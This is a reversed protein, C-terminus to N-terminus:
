GQRKGYRGSPISRVWIWAFPNPNLTVRGGMDESQVKDIKGNRALQLRLNGGQVSQVCRSKLLLLKEPAM